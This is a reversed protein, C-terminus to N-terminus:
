ALMKLGARSFTFAICVSIGRFYQRFRGSAENILGKIAPAPRVALAVIAFSAVSGCLACCRSSGAIAGFM